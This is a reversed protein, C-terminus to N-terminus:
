RKRMIMMYFFRPWQMGVVLTAAQPSFPLENIYRAFDKSTCYLLAVSISTILVGGLYFWLLQAVLSETGM